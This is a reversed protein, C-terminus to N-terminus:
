NISKESVARDTEYSLCMDRIIQQNEYQTNASKLTKKLITVETKEFNKVLFLFSLIM